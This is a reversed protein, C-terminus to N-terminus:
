SFKLKLKAAYRRSIVFPKEVNRLYVQHSHQFWNELREIYDLNIITSRHIRAFYKEPLRDEWEKLAKRVLLKQGDLTFIESYDVAANIFLISNVKVFKSHRDVELLLRDEYELKRVNQIPVISSLREIARALRVPNIPKLLYDLANVDFARLAYADFATVFILKFSVEIRELLGFGSEGPMQIDLFVVDPLERQILDIAQSVNEAEGIVDIVKHEDLMARLERRALREDDIIIARLRM